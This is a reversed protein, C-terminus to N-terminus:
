NKSWGWRFRFSTGTIFLGCFLPSGGRLDCIKEFVGGESGAFKEYVGWKLGM